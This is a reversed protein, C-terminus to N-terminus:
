KSDSHNSGTPSTPLSITPPLDGQGIHQTPLAALLSSVNFSRPRVVTSTPHSQTCSCSAQQDTEHDDRQSPLISLNHANLSPPLREIQRSYTTFTVHFDIVFNGILANGLTDYVQFEAIPQSTTVLAQAVVDKPSIMVSVYPRHSGATGTGYFPRDAVITSGIQRYPLVALTVDATQAWADIRHCSMHSFLTIYQDAITYPTVKLSALVTSVGLLRIKQFYPPANPIEPPAKPRGPSKYWTPAATLRARHLRASIQRSIRANSKNGRPM